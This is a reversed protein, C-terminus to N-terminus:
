RAFPASLTRTSTSRHCSCTSAFVFVNLDADRTGRPIGWLALALSGGVAAKIGAAAFADLLELALRAPTTSDRHFEPVETV